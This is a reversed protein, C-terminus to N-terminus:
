RPNIGVIMGLFAGMDEPTDTVHVVSCGDITEGDPTDAQGIAFMDRFVPSTRILLGKYVRFAVANRAVLVINGDELWLGEDKRINPPFSTSSTEQAM